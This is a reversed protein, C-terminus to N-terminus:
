LSFFNLIKDIINASVINENLESIVLKLRMLVLKEIGSIIVRRRPVIFEILLVDKMVNIIMDMKDLMTRDILMKTMFLCILEPSIVPDELMMALMIAGAQGEHANPKSLTIPRPPNRVMSGNLPRSSPKMAM